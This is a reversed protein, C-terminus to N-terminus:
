APLRSVVRNRGHQKASYLCTDAEAILDDVADLRDRTFTGRWLTNRLVLIARPEGHRLITVALLSCVDLGALAPDRDFRSDATADDVLLPERTREAYRVVSLPIRDTVRARLQDLSTESSLAQSAKVVAM